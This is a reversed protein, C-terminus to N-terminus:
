PDVSIESNTGASEVTKNNETMQILSPIHMQMGKIVYKLLLSQPIKASM